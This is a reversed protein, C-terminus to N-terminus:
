FIGIHLELPNKYGKPAARLTTPNMVLHYLENATTPINYYLPYNM